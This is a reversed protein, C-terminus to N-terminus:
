MKDSICREKNQLGMKKAVSKRGQFCKKENGYKMSGFYNNEERRGKNTVNKSNCNGTADPQRVRYCITHGQLLICSETDSQM